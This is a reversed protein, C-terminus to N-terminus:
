RRKANKGHEPAKVKCQHLYELVESLSYRVCRKGIKYYPIRENAGCRWNQLTSISLGCIESVQKENLWIAGSGQAL